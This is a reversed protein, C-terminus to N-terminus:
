GGGEAQLEKFAAHLVPDDEPEGKWEAQKGSKSGRGGGGLKKKSQKRIKENLSRREQKKLEDAFELQLARKILAPTMVDSRGKSALGAQLIEVADQLRALAKPKPAKSTGLLKGEGLTDVMAGFAADAQEQRFTVQEDRFEKLEAEFRQIRDEYHSGLKTFEEILDQDQIDPDLGPKYAKEESKLRGNADRERAAKERAAREAKLAAEREDGPKDKAAKGAAFAQKDVLDAHRQLEELDSFGEIDEETLDLSELIEIADETTRWEDDEEDDGTDNEDPVTEEDEPEDDGPKEDGPKEGPKDEEKGKGAGDDDDAPDPPNDKGHQDLIKEAAKEDLTGDEKILPM